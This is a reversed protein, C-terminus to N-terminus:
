PFYRMAMFQVFSLTNSTSTGRSPTTRVNGPFSTTFSRLNSTFGREVTTTTMSYFFLLSLFSSIHKWNEGQQSQQPTHSQICTIEHMAASDYIRSPFVDRAWEPSDMCAIHCVGVKQIIDALLYAVQKAFEAGAM